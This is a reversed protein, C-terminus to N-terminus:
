NRLEPWLQTFTLLNLLFKTLLGSHDLVRGVLVSETGTKEPFDHFKLIENELGPFDHFSLAINPLSAVASILALVTYFQSSLNVM